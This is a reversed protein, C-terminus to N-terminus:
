QYSLTLKTICFNWTKLTSANAVWHISAIAGGDTTAPVAVSTAGAAVIVQGISKDGADHFDVVIGAPVSGVWNVATIKMGANCQGFSYKSPATTALNNATLFTKMQPWTSTDLALFACLNFAMGAGANTGTCNSGSFCEKGTTYGLTCTGGTWQYDFWAGVINPGPNPYNFICMWGDAHTANTNGCTAGGPGILDPTTGPTGVTTSGGSNTVTGGAGTAGGSASSGGNGQSGGSTSSGGNAQSGGSTSSGGNAQSGGSTSSGGNAQSGGSTSAGGNAQSGGSTSAGGNAQSGGSAPSGGNAQSGGSASSGGNGQSGGSASSGGNGQSGGSGHGGSSNGGGAGGNGGSNGGNTCAGALLSALGVMIFSLSKVQGRERTCPNSM